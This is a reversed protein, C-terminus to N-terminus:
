APQAYLEDIVGAYREMVVRRKVKLTPTLEGSDQTFPQELIAFQRIQTARAVDANVHDVAEQVLARIEPRRTLEGGRETLRHKDAELDVEAEELTVLAAVFPRRDGIVCADAIYPSARLANELNAPSVNKGGATIIIDKKRDTIRLFGDDLEGVDGTQLWGDVLAAATAGPDHWYGAFVNPGRLLIEGDEAVRVEMRPLPRGVTGARVDGITNTSVGTATETLGYAELVTV